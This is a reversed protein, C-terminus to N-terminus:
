NSSYGRIKRELVSAHGPAQKLSPHLASGVLDRLAGPADVSAGTSPVCGNLM